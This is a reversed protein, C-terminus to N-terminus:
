IRPPKLPIKNIGIVIGEFFKEKAIKTDTVFM